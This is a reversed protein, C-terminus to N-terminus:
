QIETIELLIKTAKPDLFAVRSEHAGTGPEHDLLPVGKEKLGELEQEINDVQLALHHLGEGKKELFRALPTDPETPELLEIKNEGAPIIAVKVKRHSVVEIDDLKLGLSETYLKASDEVNNVAIGIHDIRLIM